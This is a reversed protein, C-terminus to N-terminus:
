LVNKRGQLYCKIYEYIADNYILTTRQMSTHREWQVILESLLSPTIYRATKQCRICFKESLLFIYLIIIILFAVM